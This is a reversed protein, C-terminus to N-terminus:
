KLTNLFARRVEFIENQIRDVRRDLTHIEFIRHRHKEWKPHWVVYATWTPSNIFELASLIETEGSHYRMGGWIVSWTGEYPFVHQSVLLVHFRSIHSSFSNQRSAFNTMNKRTVPVLQYGLQGLYKKMDRDTWEGKKPNYFKDVKKPKLGTICAAAHTGCSGLTNSDFKPGYINFKMVYFGSWDIKERRGIRM